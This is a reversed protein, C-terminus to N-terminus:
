AAKLMFVNSNALSNELKVSDLAFMLAVDKIAFEAVIQNKYEVRYLTAVKTVKAGTLFEGMQQEKNIVICVNYCFPGNQDVM